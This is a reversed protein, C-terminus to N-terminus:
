KTLVHAVKDQDSFYEIGENKLKVIGMKM